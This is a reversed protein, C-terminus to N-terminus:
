LYYELDSKDDPKAPPPQKAFFRMYLSGPSLLQLVDELKTSQLAQLCM